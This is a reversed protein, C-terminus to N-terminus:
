AFLANVLPTILLDILIITNLFIDKCTTMVYSLCLLLYLRQYFGLYM